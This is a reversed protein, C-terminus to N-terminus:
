PIKETTQLRRAAPTSSAVADRVGAELDFAPQWGLAARLQEGSGVLWPEDDPRLPIDGFGLLEPPADLAEAVKSAFTRVSHGLGTCVNWTAVSPSQVAMQADARLCAEVVDKVYIFDLIQTGASLPVRRGQPLSAILSPLLRHPAEGPGYVKFLRLLRLRVDLQRALAAALLGGAAKAAGYIKASELPSDETLPTADAPRRYESFTGTMIM